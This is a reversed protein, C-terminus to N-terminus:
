EVFSWLCYSAVGEFNSFKRENQWQLKLNGMYFFNYVAACTTLTVHSATLNTMYKNSVNAYNFPSLFINAFVEIECIEFHDLSKFLLVYKVTIMLIQAMLTHWFSILNISRLCRYPKHWHVGTFMLLTLPLCPLTITIDVFVEIIDIEFHDM